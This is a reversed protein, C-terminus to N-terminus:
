EIETLEEDYPKFDKNQYNGSGSEEKEKGNICERKAKIQPSYEDMAIDQLHEIPESITQDTSCFLHNILAVTFTAKKAKLMINNWESEFLRARIRSENDRPREIGINDRLQAIEQHRSENILGAKQIIESKALCSSPYFRIKPIKGFQKTQETFWEYSEHTIIEPDPDSIARIKKRIAELLRTQRETFPNPNRIMKWRISNQM